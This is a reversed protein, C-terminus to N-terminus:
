VLNICAGSARGTNADSRGIGAAEAARVVAVMASDVGAAYLWDNIVMVVDDARWTILIYGNGTRTVPPGEGRDAAAVLGGALREDASGNPVGITHGLLCVASGGCVLFSLRSRPDLGIM